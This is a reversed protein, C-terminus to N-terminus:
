IGDRSEADASGCANPPWKGADEPGPPSPRSLALFYAVLHSVLRIRLELCLSIDVKRAHHRPCRLAAGAHPLHARAPHNVREDM